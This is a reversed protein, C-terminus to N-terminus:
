LNYKEAKKKMEVEKHLPKTDADYGYIFVLYNNKIFFWDNYNEQTNIVKVEIYLVDKYVYYGVDEVVGSKKTPPSISDFIIQKGLFIEKLFDIVNVGYASEPVYSEDYMVNDDVGLYDLVDTIFLMDKGRMYSERFREFLKIHKM